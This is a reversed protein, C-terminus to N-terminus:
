FLLQSHLCQKFQYLNLEGLEKERERKETQTTGVHEWKKGGKGGQHQVQPPQLMRGKNREGARWLRGLCPTEETVGAQGKEDKVIAATFTFDELSVIESYWARTRVGTGM